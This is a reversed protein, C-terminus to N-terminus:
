IAPTLSKSVAGEREELWTCFAKTPRFYWTGIGRGQRKDGTIFTASPINGARAAAAITQARLGSLAAAQHVSLPKGDEIRQRASAAIIIAGLLTSPDASEVLDDASKLDEIPSRFAMSLEAICVDAGKAPREGRAIEALALLNHRADPLASKTKEGHRGGLSEFAQSVRELLQAVTTAAFDAPDIDALHITKRAVARKKPNAM